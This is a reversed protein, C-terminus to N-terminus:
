SESKVAELAALCIAHPATDAIVSYVGGLSVCWGKTNIKDPLYVSSIAPSHHGDQTSFKEIVEWADEIRTSYPKFEPPRVECQNEDILHKVTGDADWHSLIKWGMVRTAILKDLEAGAEM